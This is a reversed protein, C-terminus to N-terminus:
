FIMRYALTGIGLIVTLQFIPLFVADYSPSAYAIMYQKGAISSPLAITNGLITISGPVIHTIGPPPAMFNQIYTVFPLASVASYEWQALTLMASVVDNAATAAIKVVPNADPPIPIVAAGKPIGLFSPVSGTGTGPAVTGNPPQYASDAVTIANDPNPQELGGRYMLMASQGSGLFMITPQYTGANPYRYQVYFNTANTFGGPPTIDIYANPDGFPDPELRVSMVAFPVDARYRVSVPELRAYLAKDTDFRLYGGTATATAGTSTRYHVGVAPMVGLNIWNVTFPNWSLTTLGTAKSADHSNGLYTSFTRTHTGPIVSACEADIRPFYLAQPNPLASSFAFCGTGSLPIITGTDTLPTGPPYGRFYKVSTISGTGGCPGPNIYWSYCEPVGVAVTTGTSTPAFHSPATIDLGEGTAPEVVNVYSGSLNLAALGGGTGSFGPNQNYQSLVAVPSFRGTSWYTLYAIESGSDELNANGNGSGPFPLFFNFWGSVGDNIEGWRPPFTSNTWSAKFPYTVGRLLTSGSLSVLSYTAPPPGLPAPPTYGLSTTGPYWSFWLKPVGWDDVAGGCTPSGGCYGASYAYYVASLPFYFTDSMHTVDWIGAYSGNTFHFAYTHSDQGNEYLHTWAGAYYHWIEIPNTYNGGHAVGAQDMARIAQQENTPGNTSTGVGIKADDKLPIVCTANLNSITANNATSSVCSWFSIKTCTAATCDNANWFGSPLHSLDSGGSLIGTPDANPYSTAHGTVPAVLLAVIVMITWAMAEYRTDVATEM